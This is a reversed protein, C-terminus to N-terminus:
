TAFGTVIAASAFSTGMEWITKPESKGKRADM